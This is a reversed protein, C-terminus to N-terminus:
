QFDGMSGEVMVSGVLVCIMGLLSTAVVFMLLPMVLPIVLFSTAVVFMVLSM